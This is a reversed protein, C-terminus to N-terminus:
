MNLVSNVAKSMTHIGALTFVAIVNLLMDLERNQIPPPLSPNLGQKVTVARCYPFVALAFM